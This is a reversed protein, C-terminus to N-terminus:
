TTCIFKYACFWVSFIILWLAVHLLITQKTCSKYGCFHNIIQCMHFMLIVYSVVGISVHILDFLSSHCRIYDHLLAIVFLIVFFLIGGTMFLCMSTPYCCDENDDDRCIYTCTHPCRSLTYDICECCHQLLCDLSPKWNRRASQRRDYSDEYQTYPTRFLSSTESDSIQREAASSMPPLSPQDIIVIGEDHSQIKQLVSEYYWEKEELVGVFVTYHRVDSKIRELVTRILDSARKSPSNRDNIFEEHNEETILGHSLLRNSLDCLDNKVANTLDPTLQKIIKYQPTIGRSRSMALSQRSGYINYVVYVPNSVHPCDTDSFQCFKVFFPWFHRM